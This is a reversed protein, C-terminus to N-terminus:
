TQAGCGAGMATALWQEVQAVLREAADHLLRQGEQADAGTPDGLVGTESVARVGRRRLEPLLLSLPETRGRVADGMRVAAPDLALMMSTETRGAHADSGPVGVEAVLVRDGEFHCRRSARELAERNGGHASV